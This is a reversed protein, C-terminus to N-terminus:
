DCVGVCVCVDLFVRDVGDVDAVVDGVVVVDDVPDPVPCELGKGRFNISINFLSSGDM